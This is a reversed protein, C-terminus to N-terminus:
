KPRSNGKRFPSLELISRNNETQSAYKHQEAEKRSASAAKKEEAISTSASLVFGKLRRNPIKLRKDRTIM